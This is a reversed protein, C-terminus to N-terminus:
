RRIPAGRGGSLRAAMESFSRADEARGSLKYMAALNGFPLSLQDEDIFGQKVALQMMELGRRTLQLAEDRHEIEWYSAGMSVFREGHRGLEHGASPPLSDTLYPRAREYWRVADEHKRNLVAHCSGVFFYLQGIRLRDAPILESVALIPDVQDAARTAYELAKTQTGRGHEIGAADLLAMAQTFALSREYLPDESADRLKQVEREISAILQAPDADSALEVQCRLNASQVKLVLAEDGQDQSITADALERASALWKATTEQRRQWNGAAIDFASALFADVLVSKARHRMASESSTALPTAHKIAALHHQIASAYDRAPGIALIDGWRCEAEARSVAPASAEEAIDKAITEAEDHRELQLLLRARRLRAETDGPSLQLAQDITALAESAQGAQDLIQAKLLLATIHSPDLDLALQLDSLSREFRHRRDQQVRLVFPEATVPELILQTVQSVAAPSAFNLLLGREPYVCGLVEDRDNIVQAPEIDGLQLEEAIQRATGPEKLHLVISSVVEHHVLVDVQSFPEVAFTMTKEDQEATESIPKGLQALVDEVRSVGPTVQRFSCPRPAATNESRPNGPMSDRSASPTATPPEEAGPRQAPPTAPTPTPELPPPVIAPTPEQTTAPATTPVITSTGREDAWSALAGLLMLLVGLGAPYIPLRARVPRKALPESGPAGERPSGSALAQSNAQESRIATARLHHCDMAVHSWHDSLM